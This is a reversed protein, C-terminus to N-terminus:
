TPTGGKSNDREGDGTIRPQEPQAPFSSSAARQMALIRDDDAQTWPLIVARPPLGQGRRLGERTKVELYIEDPGEEAKERNRRVRYFNNEEEQERQAIKYAFHNNASARLEGLNTRIKDVYNPSGLELKEVIDLSTQAQSLGQNFQLLVEYVRVDMPSYEKGKRSPLGSASEFRKARQPADAIGNWEDLCVPLAVTSLGVLLFFV